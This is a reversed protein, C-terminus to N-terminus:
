EELLSLLEDLTGSTDPKINVRSLTYGASDLEMLKAVLEKPTRASHNAKALGNQEPSNIFAVVGSLQMLAIADKANIANKGEPMTGTLNDFYQVRLNM